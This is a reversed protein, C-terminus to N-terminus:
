IARDFDSLAGAQDGMAVRVYGRNNYAAAYKKNIGIARDYDAIAAKYDRQQIRVFARNYYARAFRPDLELARNFDVLASEVEGRALRARARAYYAREFRPDFAIAIDYDAIARDFEGHEQFESGRAFYSAATKARSAQTQAAVSSALLLWAAVYCLGVVKMSQRGGFMIRRRRRHDISSNVYNRGAPRCVGGYHSRRSHGKDPRDPSKNAVPHFSGM